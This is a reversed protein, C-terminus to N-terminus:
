PINVLYANVRLHEPPTLVNIRSSYALNDYVLVHNHGVSTGSRARLPTNAALTLSSEGVRGDVGGGVFGRM